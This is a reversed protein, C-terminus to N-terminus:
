ADSVADAEDIKSRIAIMVGCKLLKRAIVNLGSGGVTLKTLSQQEDNETFLCRTQSDVPNTVPRRTTHKSM